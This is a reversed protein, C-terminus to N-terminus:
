IYGISSDAKLNKNTIVKGLDKLEATPLTKKSLKM